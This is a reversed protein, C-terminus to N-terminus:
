LSNAENKDKVIETAECRSVISSLYIGDSIAVIELFIADETFIVQWTALCNRFVKHTFILAEVLENLSGM